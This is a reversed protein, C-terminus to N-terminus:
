PIVIQFLVKNRTLWFIALMTVHSSQQKWLHLMLLALELESLLGLNRELTQKWL